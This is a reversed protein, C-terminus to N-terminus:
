CMIQELTAVADNMMSELEPVCPVRMYKAKIKPGAIM